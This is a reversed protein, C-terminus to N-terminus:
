PRALRDAPSRDVAPAPFARRARSVTNATDEERPRARSLQADDPRWRMWHLRSVAREVALVAQSGPYWDGSLPSYTAVARRCLTAASILYSDVALPVHEGAGGMPRFLGARDLATVLEIFGLSDIRATLLSDLRDETFFRRTVTGDRRFVMRDFSCRAACHRYERTIETIEVPYPSPADGWDPEVFPPRRPACAALGTALLM